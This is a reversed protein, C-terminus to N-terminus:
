IFSLLKFPQVRKGLDEEDLEVDDSTPNAEEQKRREEREKLRRAEREKEAKEEKERRLREKKEEERRKKDKWDEFSITPEGSPWSTRSQHLFKIMLCELRKGEKERKAKDAEYDKKDQERQKREREERKKRADEKDGYM